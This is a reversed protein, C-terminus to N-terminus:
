ATGATGATRLAEARMVQKLVNALGYACKAPM